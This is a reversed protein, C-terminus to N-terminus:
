KGAGEIGFDRRAGHVVVGTAQTCHTISLKRKSRKAYEKKNRDEKYARMRSFLRVLGLSPLPDEFEDLTLIQLMKRTDTTLLKKMPM